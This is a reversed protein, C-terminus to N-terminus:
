QLFLFCFGTYDERIGKLKWQFFKPLFLASINQVNNKIFGNERMNGRIGKTSERSM